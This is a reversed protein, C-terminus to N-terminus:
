ITKGNKQKIPIFIRAKEWAFKIGKESVKFKLVEQNEEVFTPKINLRMLDEDQNYSNAGWGNNKTNLIIVWDENENPIIFFGYKGAPVTQDGIAVANSFSITTNENAGARWVKGYKELGGWIVREKVSPAGYDISVTTTGIEGTTQIRPSKQAFAVTTLLLFVWFIKFPNMRIKAM